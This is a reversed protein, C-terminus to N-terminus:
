GRGPLPAPVRTGQAPCLFELGTRPVGFGCPAGVPSAAAGPLQQKLAALGGPKRKTILVSTARLIRPAPFLAACRNANLFLCFHTPPGHGAPGRIQPRRPTRAALGLTAEPCGSRSFASKHRVVPPSTPDTRASGRLPAASAAAPESCRRAVAGGLEARSRRSGAAVNEPPSPSARPSLRPAMQGAGPARASPETLFWPM